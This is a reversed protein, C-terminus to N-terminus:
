LRRSSKVVAMPAALRKVRRRKELEVRGATGTCRENHVALRTRMTAMERSGSPPTHTGRSLVLHLRASEHRCLPSVPSAHPPRGRLGGVCRGLACRHGAAGVREACARRRGHLRRRGHRLEELDLGGVGVTQEPVPHAVEVLEKELVGDNGGAREADHQGLPALMLALVNGHAANRDVAGVLIELAQDPEAVPDGHALLELIRGFRSLPAALRDHASVDHAKDRRSRQRLLREEVRPGAIIQGPEKTGGAGLSPRDTRRPRDREGGEVDRGAFELDALHRAEIERALEHTEGRALHNDGVPKEGVRLELAPDLKGPGGRSRHRGRGEVAEGSLPGQFTPEPDGLKGREAPEGAGLQGRGAGHEAIDIQRLDTLRRHKTRRASGAGPRDEDDVRRAAGAELQCPRRRALPLSAQQGGDVAGHGAGPRALERRPQGRRQGIPVRDLRAEVRHLKEDLVVRQALVHPLAHTVSGVDRAGHRAEGESTPPRAIEARDAVPDGRSLGRTRAHRSLGAGDAEGVLHAAHGLTELAGTLGEAHAECLREDIM